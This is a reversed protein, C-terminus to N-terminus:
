RVVRKIELVMNQLKVIPQGLRTTVGKYHSKIWEVVTNRVDNDYAIFVQLPLEASFVDPTYDAASPPLLSTIGLVFPVLTGNLSNKLLDPAVGIENRVGEVIQHLKLMDEALGNACITDIEVELMETWGDLDIGNHEKAYAVQFRFSENKARMALKAKKNQQKNKKM